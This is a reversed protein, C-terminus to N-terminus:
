LDRRKNKKELEETMQSERLDALVRTAYGKGSYELITVILQPKTFTTFANGPQLSDRNLPLLSSHAASM